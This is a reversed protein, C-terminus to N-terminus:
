RDRRLGDACVPADHADDGKHQGYLGTLTRVSLVSGLLERRCSAVSELVNHGGIM